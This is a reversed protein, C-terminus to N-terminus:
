IIGENGPAKVKLESLLGATFQNALVSQEMEEAERSCRATTPYAKQFLSQFDQAFSNVSEDM